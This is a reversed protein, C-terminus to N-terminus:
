PKVGLIAAAQMLKYQRESRGGAGIVIRGDLGRLRYRLTGRDQCLVRELNVLSIWGDPTSRTKLRSLDTAESLISVMAQMPSPMDQSESEVRGTAQWGPASKKEAEMEAGKLCLLLIAHPM